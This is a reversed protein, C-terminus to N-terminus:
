ELCRGTRRDALRQLGERLRELGRELTEGGAAFSVRLTGEGAPGYASGHIVVVGTEQLLFRRVEESPLDLQRIDVMVFLGGEPVLPEVGALGGLGRVVRDRREQYEAALQRACQQSSTLACAAADQVFTAPGRSFQQLVRLMAQIIEAPGACYGVRWGTMAYTKSLSNVLVTRDRAPASLSAPSIHARGDYVLAEYIEDSIVFLQHQCAFDMVEDLETPTFVSGVPNWPTNLLLVKTRPTWSAELAARDFMFRGGRVSAPVSVAQGGWLAIPSLYADYIPDPLLVEDGAQILAALAVAIGCTAGDTILIEGDPDYQINQDRALKEAVARRLRPEGQNDPYGTRGAHLARHAAEVIHVPTPTDPQGRMLSVLKKGEAELQRVEKLVVNIATPRARAVWDTAFM